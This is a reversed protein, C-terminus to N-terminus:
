RWAEMRDLLTAIRRAFDRQKPLQPLASPYLRSNRASELIFLTLERDGVIRQLRVPDRMAAALEEAPVDRNVCVKELFAARLRDDALLQSYGLGGNARDLTTRLAGLDGGVSKAAIGGPGIRAPDRVFVGAVRVAVLGIVGLVCAYLIWRLAGSYTAYYATAVALLSVLIVLFLTTVGFANYWVRVTTPLSEDAYLSGKRPLPGRQINGRDQMAQLLREDSGRQMWSV